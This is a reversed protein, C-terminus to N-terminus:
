IEAWGGHKGAVFVPAPAPAPVPAAAPRKIDKRDVPEGISQDMLWLRLGDRLKSNENATKYISERSEARIARIKLIFLVVEAIMEGMKKDIIRQSYKQFFNGLGYIKALAIIEKRKLTTKQEMAMVFKKEEEILKEDVKRDNSTHM